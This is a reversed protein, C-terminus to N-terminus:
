VSMESTRGQRKCRAHAALRATVLPLSSPRVESILMQNSPQALLVARVAAVAPDNTDPYTYNWEGGVM